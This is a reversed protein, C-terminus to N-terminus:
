GKGFNTCFLYLINENMYCIEKVALASLVTVDVAAKSLFGCLRSRPIVKSRPNEEKEIGIGVRRVEEPKSFTCNVKTSQGPCAESILVMM